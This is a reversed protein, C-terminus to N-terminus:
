KPSTIDSPSLCLHKCVAELLHTPAVAPAESSPNISVPQLARAAFDIDIPASTIRSLASIRNVAGELDRISSRIRIAVYHRVEPPLNLGLASAKAEVYRVREETSPQGIDAVLGWRLPDHFRGGAGAMAAADGAVAVRRGQDHLSAVTQYFEVLTAKKGLFQHVDDILLLDLDRYRARFAAGTKNRVATTFESVFHEAAVLVFRAGNRAAEHAIAHLLHTKGNGSGGTIFLPSYPCDAARAIDRAATAALRNFDSEMFTSFVFRPNLPTQPSPLLAPQLAGAEGESAGDRPPEFRVQLGPGAVATLAQAIVTRMRTSLWDCALENPATVVLTTGEFRSGVTNRLWTDYNQRTVRLVLQSLTADWLEHASAPLASSM